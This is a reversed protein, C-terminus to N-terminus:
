KTLVERGKIYGAFWGADAATPDQWIDDLELCKDKTYLSFITNLGRQFGAAYAEEPTPNIPYWGPIYSLGAEDYLREARERRQHLAAQKIQMHREYTSPM